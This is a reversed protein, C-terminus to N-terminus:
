AEITRPIAAKGSCRHRLRTLAPRTHQRGSEAFPILGLILTLDASSAAFAGQRIRLVAIATAQETLQHKCRIRLLAPSQRQLM